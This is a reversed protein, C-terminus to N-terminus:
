QCPYGIFTPQGLYGVLYRAYGVCIRTGELNAGTVVASEDVGPGVSRSFASRTFDAGALNANTLNAGSLDLALAPLNAIAGRLDAGVLNARMFPGGLHAGTMVAGSLDVGDFAGTLAAGQLNTRRFAASPTGGLNGDSLQVTAGALDLDSFDLFLSPLQGRWALQAGRFVAGSIVTGVASNPLFYARSLDAGGFNAGDLVVNDFHAGVLSVRDFRVNRCISQDFRVGSLDRGRFDWNTLDHRALSCNTLVAGQIAAPALPGPGSLDASTLNADVFATSTLVADAMRAGQLNARTFNARTLDGGTLVAGALSAGVFRTGVANLGGLTAGEFSAGDADVGDFVVVGTATAHDFRAGVLSAGTFVTRTLAARTLIAADATARAFTAPREGGPWAADAFEGLRADTFDAAELASDAFSVGDLLAGVFTAGTLDRAALDQGTLDLGDLRARRGSRIESFNLAGAPTAGVFSAGDIVADRLNLDTTRVDTALTDTLDAGSLDVQGLEAGELHAAHAIAGPLLAGLLTAAELHTGNLHAAALHAGSLVAGELHAADLVARSLVLDRLDLGPARVATFDIGDAEVLQFAAGTLTAGRFGVDTLVSAALDAEQLDAADFTTGRMQAESLNARFMAAGDFHTGDLVSRALNAQRLDAGTLDAGALEVWLFVDTPMRARRLSAGTLDIHNLTLASLEADDLRAGRMRTRSVTCERTLVGCTDRSEWLCGAPLVCDTPEFPPPALADGFSTGIFSSGRLDAGELRAGVLNAGNLNTGGLRTRCTCRVFDGGGDACEGGPDYASADVACACDGVADETGCDFRTQELIAGVLSAGTLDAGRLTTATLVANSFRARRLDARDFHANSLDTLALSTGRLCAQEFQAGVLRASGLDTGSLDVGRLIAGTLDAQAFVAGTLSVSPRAAAADCPPAPLPEAPGVFVAGRLDAATFNAFDLEAGAFQARPLRAGFLTASRFSVGRLDAGPADEPTGDPPSLDAGFLNASALNAGALRAGRLDANVLIAGSLDRDRFDGTLKTGTLDAGALEVCGEASACDGFDTADLTRGSLDLGAGALDVLRLELPAAAVNPQAATVSAEVTADSFGARTATLRYLGARRVSFTAGAGTRVGEITQTGGPGDLRVRAFREGDPVWDPTFGVSVDIRADIEAAPLTVVVPDGQEDVFGGAGFHLPGIGAPPTVYGVRRLYVRYLDDGAAPVEFRGDAETVTARFPRDPSAFRVSVATGALEAGDALMVQGALPVANPGSSVHRLVLDGTEFTHGPEIQVPSEHAEYGLATARLTYDGIGVDAITFRGDPTPQTTRQVTGAADLLELAVDATLAPDGFEALVVGGRVNGPNAALQIAHDPLSYLSAAALDPLAYEALGYYERWFVLRHGPGPPVQLRFEGDPGTLTSLPSDQLQVQIGGWRQADAGVGVLEVTGTVTALRDPQDVPIPQLALRGTDATAGVPLEVVVEASEFGPLSARVRWTGPGLDTLAFRGDRGVDVPGAAPADQPNADPAACSVAADDLWRAEYGDPLDVTGRITGPNGRLASQPACDTETAPAVVGCQVDPPSEFGVHSFRLAVADGAPVDLAFRGDEGTTTQWPTGPVAVLTGGPGAQPEPELLVQGVLTGRPAASPRLVVEGVDVDAGPGVDVFLTVPDFPPSDLRVGVRWRGPPVAELLFAGEPATPAAQGAPPADPGSATREVRATTLLNPDYGAPLTVHGRIAGPEAALQADLPTDVGTAVTVPADPATFGPRVFQVVHSGAPAALRFSGDAATATAFPADKLRVGTGACGDAPAGSWRVQGVIAGFDSESAPAFVLRGADYDEGPALAVRVSIDAFGLLSAELRWAGPLVDDLLFRGPLGDPVGVDSAEADPAADVAVLRVSTARLRDPDEFGPPLAFTVRVRGPRANLVIEHPLTTEAGLEVRVGPYATAGFGRFSFALDHLGAAADLRFTGDDGTFALSPAGVVEVRIGANGDDPAGQLRARGVITGLAREDVSISLDAVTVTQGIGVVATAPTAFYGPLALEVAYTGAVVDDMRYRGQPDPSVQAVVAQDAALNRLVLRATVLVAADVNQPVVVRGLVTGTAQQAAPTQPDFPNTPSINACGFLFAAVMLTLLGGPVGRM